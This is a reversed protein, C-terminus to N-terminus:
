CYSQQLQIMGAYDEFIQSTTRGSGLFLAVDDTVVNATSFTLVTSPLGVQDSPQLTTFAIRFGDVHMSLSSGIRSVALAYWTNAGLALGSGDANLTKGAGTSFILLSREGTILTASGWQLLVFTEGRAPLQLLKFWMQITFDRTGPSDIPVWVNAGTFAGGGFLADNTITANNLLVGLNAGLKDSADVDGTWYSVLSAPRTVCPRGPCPGASDLSFVIDSLDVKGDLNGDAPCSSTNCAGWLGKALALDGSNVVNNRDYDAPCRAIEAPVLCFLSLPPNLSPFDGCGSAIDFWKTAFSCTCGSRIAVQSTETGGFGLACRFCFTDAVCGDSAIPYPYAEPELLTLIQFRLIDRFFIM